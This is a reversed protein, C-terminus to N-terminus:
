TSAIIHRSGVSHGRAPSPVVGVSYARMENM